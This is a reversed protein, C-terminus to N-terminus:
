LLLLLQHSASSLITKNFFITISQDDNLNRLCFIFMWKPSVIKLDNTLRVSSNSQFLISSKLSNLIWLQCNTKADDLLFNINWRFLFSKVRAVFEFRGFNAVFTKNQDSNHNKKKLFIVILYSCTDLLSIVWVNLFFIRILWGAM